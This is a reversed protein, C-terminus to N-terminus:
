DASHAGEGGQDVVDLGAGASEAGKRLDPGRGWRSRTQSQIPLECASGMPAVAASVARTDPAHGRGVLPRMPMAFPCPVRIAYTPAVDGVAGPEAKSKRIARARWRRLSIPLACTQVGTVLACITHRRRSSFFCFFFCCFLLLCM